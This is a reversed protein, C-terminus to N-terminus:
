ALGQQIAFHTLEANTRMRLKDLIRSRYTSITPIGLSLESAIESVTKGSAILCFVQFERDSMLEHIARDQREDVSEALMEALEETVYKRGALIRDIAKILDEGASEKSLFGSAGAKMARVAYLEARHMTLILVPTKINHYKLQKLIELGNRGPLTIDLIILDWNDARLLKMSEAENGAEGFEADRYSELIILKIGQRVVVHDDVILFRKM